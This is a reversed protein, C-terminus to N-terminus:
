GAAGVGYGSMDDEDADDRGVEAAALLLRQVDALFDQVTADYADTGAAFDDPNPKGQAKRIARISSELARAHVWVPDDPSPRPPTHHSMFLNEAPASFIQPRTRM